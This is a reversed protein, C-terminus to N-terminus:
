RVSNRMQNLASRGRTSFPSEVSRQRIAGTTDIIEGYGRSTHAAALQAHGFRSDSLILPPWSTSHGRWGPSIVLTSFKDVIQEPTSILPYGGWGAIFHEEDGQAYRPEFNRDFAWQRRLTLLGVRQQRDWMTRRLSGTLNPFVKDLPPAFLGKHVRVNKIGAKVFKEYGKCAVKEDDM